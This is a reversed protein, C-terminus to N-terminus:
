GLFLCSIFCLVFNFALQRNDGLPNKNKALPKHVCGDVDAFGAFVFGLWGVPEGDLAFLEWGIGLLLAPFDIDIVVAM